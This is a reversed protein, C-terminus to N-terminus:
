KSDESAKDADDKAPARFNVFLSGFITSVIGTVVGAAPAVFAYALLIASILVAVLAVQSWTPNFKM